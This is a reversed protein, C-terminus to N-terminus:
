MVKSIYLLPEGEGCVRCSSGFIIIYRRRADIPKARAEEEGEDRSRRKHDEGKM